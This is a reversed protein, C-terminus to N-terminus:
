QQYFINEMYLVILSQGNQVGSVLLGPPQPPFYAYDGSRITAITSLM